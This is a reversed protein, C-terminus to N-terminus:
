VCKLFNEKTYFLQFKRGWSLQQGFRKWDILWLECGDKISQRHQMRWVANSHVNLFSKWWCLRQFRSELVSHTKLISKSCLLFLILSFIGQLLKNILKTIIKSFLRLQGYSVGIVWESVTKTGMNKVMTEAM